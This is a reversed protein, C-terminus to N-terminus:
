LKEGCFPCFKIKINKQTVTHIGSSDALEISEDLILENSNDGRGSQYRYLWVGTVRHGDRNHIINKSENSREGTDEDVYTFKCYKCM